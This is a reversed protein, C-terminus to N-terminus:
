RIGLWNSIINGTEYVLWGCGTLFLLVISGEWLVAPFDKPELAPNRHTCRYRHEKLIYRRTVIEERGYPRSIPTEWFCRRFRWLAEREELCLNGFPRIEFGQTGDEFTQLLHYPFIAYKGHQEDWAILPLKSVSKSSM